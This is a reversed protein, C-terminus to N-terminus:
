TLPGHRGFRQLAVWTGHTRTLEEAEPSLIALAVVAADLLSLRDLSHTAESFSHLGELLIAVAADRETQPPPAFSGGAILWGRHPLERSWRRKYM